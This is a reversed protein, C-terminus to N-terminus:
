SLGAAIRQIKTADTVDILGDGTVDALAKQEETLTELGVAYKQVLTADTVDVVGDLNVDGMLPESKRTIAKIVFTGGVDDSLQQAYYDMVDTMAGNLLMYSQGKQSENRFVMKAGSNTTLWEGVGVSATKGTGNADIKVAISASDADLSVDDIDVCHYGAYDATGGGLRTWRATDATPAGGEDPVLYLTYAAGACDTEFVVKDIVNYADDFTFRNLFTLENQAVYSFEYTAGYIENQVLKVSDDIPMVSQVTFNPKYRSHMVYKDEYSIWIYGNNGSESGWSNKILWAGTGAPKGGGSSTFDAFSYDDDWGVLEVCHGTYTGGYSDPMFYSSHDSGLCNATYAFSVVAGGNELVARKVEEPSEKYLYKIETTGYRALGADVEDGRVSSNLPYSGLDSQLVGGQWSTLYGPAISTYGFESYDRLWGKDNSRTTAWLNLHNVAMDVDEYGDKLLKSEFAAMAAYAWCDNASQSKVPTVYGQEAANYHAPLEAGSAGDAASATTVVAGTLLAAAAAASIIHIWLKKM